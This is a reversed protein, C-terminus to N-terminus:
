VPHKQKWLTEITTLLHNPQIPKAIYDDMGASLCRERDGTMAHATMAIILVQHDRVKSSPDRIIRTAELGDMEPMQIDMLVLDYSIRELVAVAEKGNAVAEASFGFKELMRLALKQNITNDEALLVKLKRRRSIESALIRQTRLDTPLNTRTETIVPQKELRATFWFVSGEGQKSNVGVKGGMLEALQKSIALGLGTGGFKRTTSTDVQSFSQFLRGLRDPPIGIGSDAVSFYLTVQQASEQEVKVSLVIAGTETFKVANSLFNLIIQRLRGSDGRLLLPTEPAISYIFELHKDRVQVALMDVVEEITTSLNFDLIELEIKGAEIKSFDLIDNIISLLAEASSRITEAYEQQEHNLATDLLLGSMGIIGNMPTRIEHSMNALFISKTQNATEATKKAEAVEEIVENLKKQQRDNMKILRRFQNYLKKYQNILRSFAEALPTDQDTQAALLSEAESIAEEETAFLHDQNMAGQRERISEQKPHHKM